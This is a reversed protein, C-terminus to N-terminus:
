DRLRRSYPTWSDDRVWGFEQLRRGFRGAVAPPLWAHADELGRALLDKEGARHLSVLNEYRQRPGSRGGERRGVLLYMECTLRALAATEVRGDVDTLVLKSVFLPDGLDPFAYGFGSEAHIRRLEALDEEKYERIVHDRHLVAYVQLRRCIL